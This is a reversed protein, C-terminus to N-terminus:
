LRACMVYLCIASFISCHNTFLNSFEQNKDYTPIITLRLATTTTSSSGVEPIKRKHKRIPQQQLRDVNDTICTVPVISSDALVHVLM